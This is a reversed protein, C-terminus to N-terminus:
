TSEEQLNVCLICKGPDVLPRFRLEFATRVLRVQSPSAPLQQNLLHDLVVCERQNLKEAVPTVIFLRRSVYPIQTMYDGTKM